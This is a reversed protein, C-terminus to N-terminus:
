ASLSAPSDVQLVGLAVQELAGLGTPASVLFHAAAQIM